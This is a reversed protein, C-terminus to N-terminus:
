RSITVAVAFHDSAQSDLVEAGTASLDTTHLIWDIRYRPNAANSTYGPGTGAEEWADIWGAELVETM